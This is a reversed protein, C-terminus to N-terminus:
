EQDDMITSNEVFQYIMGGGEILFLILPRAVILEFYGKAIDYFDNFDLIKAVATILGVGFVVITLTYILKKKLIPNDYFINHILAFHFLLYTPYYFFVGLGGNLIGDRAFVSLSQNLSAYDLGLASFLFVIPVSYLAGVQNKLIGVAIIIIVLFIIYLRRLKM